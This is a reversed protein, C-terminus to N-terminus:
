QAPMLFYELRREIFTLVETARNEWTLSAADRAAQRGLMKLKQPNDLLACLGSYAADPNDPEVLVANRGDELVEILDPTSPGIIARGAAMYLFTKIPLVTTGAKELPGASPPIFLVDAAYLYQVTRGFPQWPVVAVNPIAHARRELDGQERSGVIVFHTNPRRVALDLMLGLGKAQNVHGAYLVIRGSNPLGLKKRANRRSLAPKMRDPHYGNYAVLLKDRSLGIDVFSQGALQSHTIAGLFQRHDIMWMLFPVLAKVQRPWPRYTEYVVPKDSLALSFFVTPLNRTYIVDANKYVDASLCSVGHGLKEVGRTSPFVSKVSTVSFGADVEYYRALEAVTAPKQGWKAPLLLTVDAGVRGLADVMSIVQETDTDHLPFVQDNTCVIKM